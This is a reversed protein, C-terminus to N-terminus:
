RGRFHIPVPIWVKVKVGMKTAPSFQLKKALKKAKSIMGYDDAGSPLPSRSLVVDEVEGDTDILARMYFTITRDREVVDDRLAKRPVELTDYAEQLLPHELLPDDFPVLEGFKPPKIDEVPKSVDLVSTGEPLVPPESPLTENSSSASANDTDAKAAVASDGDPESTASEAPTDADAVAEDSGSEAEAAKQERLKRALEEQKAREAEEEAIRQQEAKVDALQQRLKEAEQEKAEIAQLRAIEQDMRTMEEELEQKRRERELRAQEQLQQRLMENQRALDERQKRLNEEELQKGEAQLERRADEIKDDGDGGAWPKLIVVVVIVAVVALAGLIMPLKSKGGGSSASYDSDLPEPEPMTLAQGRPGHPAPPERSALATAAAAATFDKDKEAAIREAMEEMEGRFASHMFFALNFTTPSYEGSYLLGEMDKTMAQLDNYATPASADLASVLINAIQTPIAEGDAATTADAIRSAVDGSGENFHTGTLMEFLIAGAGFINLRDYDERLDSGAPMYLQFASPLSVPNQCARIATSFAFGRLKIEGEHTVFIVSPNIFGHQIHRQKAFTLASLLKSVVLLAHDISFPFGDSHCRELVKALSFGEHYESVGALVGSENIAENKSLINPHELKNVLMSQSLYQELFGPDKAYTPDVIDFLHYKAIKGDDLEVARWTAGTNLTEQEEVLLYRGIKRMTEM